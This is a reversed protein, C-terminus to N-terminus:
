PLLAKVVQYVAAWPVFREGLLVESNKNKPDKLYHFQVYLKGSAESPPKKAKYVNDSVKAKELAGVIDGKAQIAGLLDTITEGPVIGSADVMSKVSDFIAQVADGMPFLGTFRAGPKYRQISMYIEPLDAITNRIGFKMSDNRSRCKASLWDRVEQKTGLLVLSEVGAGVESFLYSGDKATSAAVLSENVQIVAYGSAKVEGPKVRFIQAPM